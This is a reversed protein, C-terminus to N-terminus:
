RVQMEEIYKALNLVRVKGLDQDWAFQSFVPGWVPVARGGHGALIQEEGSIIKEVRALPFKRGNRRAIPTLDAAVGALEFIARAFEHWTCSGANTVHYVGEAGREILAVSATAVDATWSPTCRQDAVVRLPKGERGLRLMTQVFNGGKGGVGAVGYLGCTRIVLHRPATMRVAYEGALKSLGYISLPGPADDEQYPTRRGADLGFVYDSSFHVLLCDLERCVEALTRVGWVNVACASEPEAEARDVLNYAACNLVVEPGIGTLAARVTEPRTLDAEARTLPVAEGGLLSCLDQGLQGAAGVVAYKM